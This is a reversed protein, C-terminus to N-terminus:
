EVTKVESASFRLYREVKGEVGGVEGAGRVRRVDDRIFECSSSAMMRSFTCSTFVSTTDSTDPPQPWTLSLRFRAM